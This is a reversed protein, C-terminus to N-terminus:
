ELNNKVLYKQLIRPCNLDSRKVWSNYRNAFLEWKVFFMQEGNEIKHKLLREVVYEVPEDSDSIDDSCKSNSQEQSPRLKLNMEETEIKHAADKREMDVQLKLINEKTSQLETQLRKNEVKLVDIFRQKKVCDTCNENSQSDVVENSYWLNDDKPEEKVEFEYEKALLIRQQAPRHM